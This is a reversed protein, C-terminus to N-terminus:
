QETDEEDSRAAELMALRDMRKKDHHNILAAVAYCAFFIIFIWFAIKLILIMSNQPRQRRTHLIPPLRHIWRASACGSRLPNTSAIM